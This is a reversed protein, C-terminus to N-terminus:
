RAEFRAEVLLPVRWIPNLPTKWGIMATIQRTPAPDKPEKGTKALWSTDGAVLVPFPVLAAGATADTSGRYREGPAVTRVNRIAMFRFSSSGRIM